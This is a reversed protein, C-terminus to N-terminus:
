SLFFSVFFSLIVITSLELLALLSLARAFKYFFFSSNGAPSLASIMFKEPAGITRPKGSRTTPYLAPVGLGVGGLDAGGMVSDAMQGSL